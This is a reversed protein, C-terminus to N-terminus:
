LVQAPAAARARRNGSVARRTSSMRGCRRSSARIRGCVVFVTYPIAGGISQGGSKPRRVGLISAAQRAHQSEFEVPSLYGLASHLRRADYVRDIFESLRTVVDDFTEYDNLYIEEHKLTKMFREAQANDYPNGRRGMSGVLGHAELVERYDRAGYQSGRDTHRQAGDLERPPVSPM